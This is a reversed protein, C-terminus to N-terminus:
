PEWASSPTNANGSLAGNNRSGGFAQKFFDVRLFCNDYDM